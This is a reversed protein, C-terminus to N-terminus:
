WCIGWKMFEGLNPLLTLSFTLQDLTSKTTPYKGNVQQTTPLKLNLEPYELQYFTPTPLINISCQAFILMDEVYDGCTSLM